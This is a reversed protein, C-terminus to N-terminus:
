GEAWRAWAAALQRFGARLQGRARWPLDALAAEVPGPRPTGQWAVVVRNGANRVRLTLVRGDFSRRLRSLHARTDTDFLNGAMVGGPALADRCDDYFARTSLAAPIGHADYADLLLLDFRGRQRRLWHAGDVCEVRLRADDPPVRFVERLAIVAPDVEAVEIRAGQLHRHCFGAQAGGGLGIIGIRRPGPRLWLAALMLRTYASHLRHPFWRSLRTQTAGADFRLELHRWTRHVHAGGDASM